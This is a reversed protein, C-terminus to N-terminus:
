GDLLLAGADPHPVLSWAERFFRLCVQPLAIVLDLTNRHLAARPFSQTQAEIDTLGEDSPVLAFNPHLARWPFAGGEPKGQGDDCSLSHKNRRCPVPALQNEWQM